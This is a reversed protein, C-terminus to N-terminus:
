LKEFQEELWLTNIRKGIIVLMNTKDGAFSDQEELFQDGFVHDIKKIGGDQMKLYGKVRWIDSCREQRFIDMLKQIRKEDFTGQFQYCWNDLASKQRSRVRAIANTKLTKQFPQLGIQFHSTNSRGFPIGEPFTDGTIETLPASVIMVEPNINHVSNKIEEIQKESMGETFNLYIIGASQIQELFFTGVVKLLRQIKKANIVMIVRNLTVCSSQACANAVDTLAAVGSPEVVIYDPNEQQVLLSVAETFSGKVTCCICGSSIEKVSVSATRLEEADLNIKGVENEIIATRYGSYTRSLMQKILTTKGTGLLGGYIDLKAM